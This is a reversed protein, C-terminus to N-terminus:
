LVKNENIWNLIKKIYDEEHSITNEKGNETVKEKLWHDCNICVDYTLNTKGLRLFELQIYDFNLIPANRDRSGGLIYIPIDLKVYSELAFTSAFSGWRKYPHNYWYKDTSTPNQYIDKYQEFLDNIQNQAEQGSIKGKIEDNRINIIPDLLPNFGGGNMSVVHTVKKNYNAVAPAVDAGESGGWVIIKSTDIQFHNCMYDIVLSSAKVRWELTLKEEYEKSPKFYELFYMFNYDKLTVEMSFPTGPKAIDVYHFDEKMIKYEKTEIFPITRTTDPYHVLFVSPYGGSGQEFIVLPKRKEINQKSVYFQVTGLEDDHITYEKFGFDDPLPLLTQSNLIITFFLLPTILIYKM